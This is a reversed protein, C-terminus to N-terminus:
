RSTPGSPARPDVLEVIRKIEAPPEVGEKGKTLFWQGYLPGLTLIM